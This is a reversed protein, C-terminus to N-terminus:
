KQQIPHAAARLEYRSRCAATLAHLSQFRPRM